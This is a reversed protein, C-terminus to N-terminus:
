RWEELLRARKLLWEIEAKIERYRATSAGNSAIFVLDWGPKAPTARASERMRRRVLNRVVAKGVKKSVIFGYRNRGLRNPLAKLVM